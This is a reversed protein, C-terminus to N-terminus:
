EDVKRMRFYYYAGGLVILVVVAGIILNTDVWDDAEKGPAGITENSPPATGPATANPATINPATENPAATENQTPITENTPPATENTTVNPPVTVNSPPSTVNPEPVIVIPPETENETSPPASSEEFCSHDVCVYGSSCDSDECCEYSNWQHNAAYGCVGPIVDVCINNDCFEDDACGSDTACDYTFLSASQFPINNVTLEETTYTGVNPVDILDIRFSAASGGVSGANSDMVYFLQFIPANPGTHTGKVDFSVPFMITGDNHNFSKSGILESTPGVNLYLDVHDIDDEEHGTGTADFVLYNINFPEENNTAISFELMKITNNDTERIWNQDPNTSTTPKVSFSEPQSWMYNSYTEGVEGTHFEGLTGESGGKAMVRINPGPSSKGPGLNIPLGVDEFPVLVEGRWGGRGGTFTAYEWNEPNVISGNRYIIIRSEGKSVTDDKNEDFGIYFYDGGDVEADSIFFYFYLEKDYYCYRLTLDDPSIGNCDGEDYDQTGDIVPAWDAYNFYLTDMPVFIIGASLLGIMLCFALLIKLKM